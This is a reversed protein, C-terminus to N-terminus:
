LKKINLPIEIPSKSNDMILYTESISSIGFMNTTHRMKISYENINDIVYNDTISDDFYTENDYDVYICLKGTDKNYSSRFNYFDSDMNSIWMFNGIVTFYIITHCLTIFSKFKNHSMEKIKKNKMLWIMIDTSFLVGVMLIIDIIIRIYM